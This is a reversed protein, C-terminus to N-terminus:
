RARGRSLVWLSAVGVACFANLLKTEQILDAFAQGPAGQKGSLMAAFPINSTQSDYWPDLTGGMGRRFRSDSHAGGLWAVLAPGYWWLRLAPHTQLAANGAGIMGFSWLGPHRSIREVGKVQRADASEKRDTFDFPCRVQLKMGESTGGMAVPIQMKPLAQSALVMGLSLFGWSTLRNLLPLKIGPNSLGALRYYGFGITATAVTSCTGYFLHYNDDGLYDILATRNESLLANEAVFFVWGAAALRIQPTGLM